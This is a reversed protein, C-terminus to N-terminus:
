ILEKRGSSVVYLAYNGGNDMPGWEVRADPILETLLAQAQRMGAQMRQFYTPM